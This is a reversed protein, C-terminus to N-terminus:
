TARFFIAYGSRHLVWAAGLHIIAPYSKVLYLPAGDEATAGADGDRM